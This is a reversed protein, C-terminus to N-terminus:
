TELQGCFLNRRWSVRGDERQRGLERRRHIKYKRCEINERSCQQSSWTDQFTVSQKPTIGTTESSVTKKMKAYFILVGHYKSVESVVRGVVCRYMM